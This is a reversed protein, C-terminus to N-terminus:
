KATYDMRLEYCKFCRIGGEPVDELGNAIKHFSCPLYDCDIMDLKNQHSITKILRQEELKRKNYEEYPEINPNYYIITIDFYPTLAELCYSSCPACCSHLLLTPVHNIKNPQFMKNVIRKLMM